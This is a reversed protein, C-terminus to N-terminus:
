AAKFIVGKFFAEEVSSMASTIVNRAQSAPIIVPWASTTSPPRVMYLRWPFKHHIFFERVDFMAIHLELVASRNAKTMAPDAALATGNLRRRSDNPAPNIVQVRRGLKTLGDSDGAARGGVREGLGFIQEVGFDDAAGGFGLGEADAGAHSAALGDLFHEGGHRRGGALPM